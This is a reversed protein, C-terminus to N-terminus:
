QAGVLKYRSERKGIKIHFIGNGDSSIKIPTGPTVGYLVSNRALALGAVPVIAVFRKRPSLSPELAYIHSGISVKYIPSRNITCGGSSTTKSDITGSTNSMGYGEDTTTANVTGSTSSSSDCGTGTEVMRFNVLVGDQYRPKDKAFAASCGLLTLCM